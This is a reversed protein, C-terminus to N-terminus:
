VMSIQLNNHVKKCVCLYTLEKNSCHNEHSREQKDCTKAISNTKFPLFFSAIIPEVVPSM